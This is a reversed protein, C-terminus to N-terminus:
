RDKRKKGPKRAQKEAEAANADLRQARYYLMSNVLWSTFGAAFFALVVGVGVRTGIHLTDLTMQIVVYICVPLYLVLMVFFFIWGVSDLRRSETM